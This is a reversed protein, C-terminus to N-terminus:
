NSRVKWESPLLPADRDDASLLNSARLLRRAESRFKVFAMRPRGEDQPIASEKGIGKSWYPALPKMASKIASKSAMASVGSPFVVRREPGVTMRGGPHLRLTQLYNYAM